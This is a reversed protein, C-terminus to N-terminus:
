HAPRAIATTKELHPGTGRARCIKGIRYEPNAPETRPDITTAAAGPLATRSAPTRVYVGAKGLIASRSSVTAAETPYITSKRCLRGSAANARNATEHATILDSCSCVSVWATERDVM